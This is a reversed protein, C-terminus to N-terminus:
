GIYRPTGPMWWYTDLVEGIGSGPKIVNAISLEGFGFTLWNSTSMVREGPPVPVQAAGANNYKWTLHDIITEPKSGEIALERVLWAIEGLTMDRMKSNAYKITVNLIYGNKLYVKDPTFIEPLRIRADMIYIFGSTREADYHEDGYFHKYLWAVVVDGSSLFPVQLGLRRLDVMAEHKLRVVETQPFYITRQSILGDCELDM